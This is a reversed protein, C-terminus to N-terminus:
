RALGYSDLLQLGLRMQEPAAESREALDKAYVKFSPLETVASSDDKEANVFLHIFELGNRFLAYAVHQPAAAELEAFVARALTENKAAHNPKATYRVLTLRQMTPDKGGGARV